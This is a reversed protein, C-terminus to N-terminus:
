SMSRSVVIRAMANTDAHSGATLVFEGAPVVDGAAADEGPLSVAVGAVFGLGAALGDGAADGDGLTLGTVLDFYPCSPLVPIRRCSYIDSILYKLILILFM